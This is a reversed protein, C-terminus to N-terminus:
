QASGSALPNWTTGGDSTQYFATNGQGDNSAVWGNTGDIFQFTNVSQNININPSVSTWTQGGDSSHYLTAGGDWVFFNNIDAISVVGNSELPTTATWTQGGDHTVYFIKNTSQGVATVPLVGDTASFFVPPDIGLQVTGLSSPLTLVQQQFTQGGDATAYLYSFNDMPISGTVWGHTADAFSIGSKDGGLTIGSQNNSNSDVTYVQNWTTGGDTTQFISIGESGAGAGLGELVWGNQDDVFIMQGNGFPAAASTWTQGSDTTHYLTGSTMDGNSSVILWASTASQFYASGNFSALDPPNVSTFSSGGDSTRLVLGASRAWGNTADIMKIQDIGNITAPATTSTATVEPTATEPVPTETAPAVTPMETAPQVTPAATDTPAAPTPTPSCAALGLIVVFTFVLTRVFPKSAM